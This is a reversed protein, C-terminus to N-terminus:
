NWRGEESRAPLMVGSVSRSAGLVAQAAKHVQEPTVAAVLHSWNAVEEVTRGTAVGIGFVEAVTYVDQQIYRADVRMHQTVHMVEARSVGESVVADLETDIAKELEAVDVGPAPIASVELSALDVSDPRYDVFIETALKKDNVVKHSLRGSQGGLIEALVQLSYTYKTEGATYSPALYARKWIPYPLIEDQMVVRRVAEHKAERRSQGLSASRLKGYYKQALPKIEVTTVDGAVVLIMNNPAYWRRFFDIADERTLRRTEAPWGLVPNGYSHSPYLAANIKEDLLAGPDDAIRQQREASVSAQEAQVDQDTITLKSMRDTELKMVTELLDDNIVQYYATYDYSTYANEHGGSEAVIDRDSYTKRSSFTLQELLHALGSKGPPDDASGVKYWVMHTIVPTGSQPIVVVQMGNDLTFSDVNIDAGFVLSPPAALTAVLVTLM